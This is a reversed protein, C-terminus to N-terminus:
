RLSFMSTAGIPPSFLWPTATLVCPSPFFSFSFDDERPPPVSFGRPVGGPHRCTETSRRGTETSGSSRGRKNEKERGRDRVLVRSNDGTVCGNHLVSGGEKLACDGTKGERPSGTKESSANRGAKWRQQRANHRENRGKGAEQYIM